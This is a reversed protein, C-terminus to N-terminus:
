GNNGKKRKIFVRMATHIAMAGLALAFIIISGINLLRSRNAGIVYADNKIMVGNIFGLEERSEQARYKYLTGMLISNSSHCEVCNRVASDSPMINHAVLISDNVEAHCEICRVAKFHLSQNPLWDHQPVVNGLEKSSLLRFKDENGHCELCVNNSELIVDAITSTSRSLLKYSHPNHCKWCSFNGDTATYHVSKMHDEDIQEFKFQAFNEDYGHCDMCSWYEEFRLSIPHPFENFEDSHCDLCSFSWHVSHYFEDRPIRNELCMMANKEMGSLTDQITYYKEGHCKLCSENEEAFINNEIGKEIIEPDGEGSDAFTPGLLMGLFVAIILVLSIKSYNRSGKKM